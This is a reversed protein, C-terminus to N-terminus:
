GAALLVIIAGLALYPAYAITSKRGARRTILLIIAAVGALMIGLILAPIVDPYGTMLGIVGALKVDGAGMAGRSVLAIILFTGLGICGGLLAQLPGPMGPLFSFALALLAAPLLMVNLVRRHELDIISVAVFFTTYLWVVGLILLNDRLFFGVLLFALITALEALPARRPRPQGCHPCVGHRFPYWLLTLYHFLAAGGARIRSPGQRVGQEGHPLRDAVWNVAAGALWGLLVTACLGAIIPLLTM